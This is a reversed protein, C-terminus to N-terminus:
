FRVRWGLDVRNRDYEQLFVSDSDRASFEYGLDIFHSRNIQYSGRLSLRVFDEEADGIGFSSYASDYNAYVYRLTGALSIKGTIDHTSGIGISFEDSANYISNQSQGLSYGLMGNFSTRDTASYDLGAELYPASTDETSGVSEVESFSYGLRATGLMNPNFNHDVGGYLTTSNFGGRDGDFVHDVYNIGGMLFTQEKKVMHIYSGDARYQDYNNGGRGTGPILGPQWEGYTDESWTRFEYGGGVKIRSIQSLSFDLAGMLDNEVFNQDISSGGVLDSQGDKEQYRFRDSLEFFVRESVAHSFNAYLDQYFVVEPDADIRYRLEPQWYLTLDSRDSFVLDGTVNFIDTIFATEQRNVDRTQYVNDDYGVRVSNQFKFTSDKAAFSAVSGLMIAVLTLYKIKNM